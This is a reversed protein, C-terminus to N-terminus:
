TKNGRIDRSSIFSRRKEDMYILWKKQVRGGEELPTSVAQHNYLFEGLSDRRENQRGQLLYVVVEEEQEEEEEEGVLDPDSDGDTLPWPSVPDIRHDVFAIQKTLVYNRLKEGTPRVSWVDSTEPSAMHDIHRLIDQTTPTLGLPTTMSPFESDASLIGGTSPVNSTHFIVRMNAAFSETAQSKSCVFLYEVFLLLAILSKGASAPVIHVTLSLPKDSDSVFAKSVNDELMTPEVFPQLQELIDDEDNAKLKIGNESPYASLAQLFSELRKTRRTAKPAPASKLNESIGNELLSKLQPDESILLLNLMVSLSEHFPLDIIEVFRSCLDEIWLKCEERLHRQKLTSWADYQTEEYQYYFAIRIHFYNRMSTTSYFRFDPRPVYSSMLEVWQEQVMAPDSCPLLTWSRIENGFEQLKLLTQYNHTKLDQRNM